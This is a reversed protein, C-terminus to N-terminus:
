HVVGEVEPLQMANFVQVAQHIEAAFKLTDFGQQFYVAIDEGNLKAATTLCVPNLQKIENKVTAIPEHKGTQGALEDLLKFYEEQTHDAAQIRRFGSGSIMTKCVVDHIADYTMPTGLDRYNKLKSYAEDSHITVILM